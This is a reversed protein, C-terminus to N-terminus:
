PKISFDIIESASYHLSLSIRGHVASDPAKHCPHWQSRGTCNEVTKGMGNTFNSKSVLGSGMHGIGQRGMAQKQLAVRVGTQVTVMVDDSFSRVEPM